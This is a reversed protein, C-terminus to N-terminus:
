IIPSMVSLNKAWIGYNKMYFEITIAKVWM